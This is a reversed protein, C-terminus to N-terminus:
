SIWRALGYAAASALGGIVVTRFGGQIPNIGTLHGKFFGFLFLALGAALQGFMAVLNLDRAAQM